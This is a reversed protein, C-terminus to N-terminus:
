PKEHRITARAETTLNSRAVPRRKAL